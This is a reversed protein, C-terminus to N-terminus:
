GQGPRARQPAVNPADCPESKPAKFAPWAGKLVRVASRCFLIAIIGGALIDPWGAQLLHVGGAAALVGVNAIVDNRSCEFTSSLNVDRGRHRYLLALCTLNAALALAGFGAMIPAMPTAGSALKAAAQAALGLGFLGILAGKALAAGARWRASRELAYLSLVYVLADGLMDVSDAMLATSRAFAGATFEIVFMAANLAMVVQLVRRVDTIQGLAAIADGKASCCDDNGPAAASCRSAESSCASATPAIDLAPAATPPSRRKPSVRFAPTSLGGGVDDAFSRHSRDPTNAQGM